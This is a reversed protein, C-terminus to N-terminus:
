DYFVEGTKIQASDPLLGSMVVPFPKVYVHLPIKMREGDRRIGLIWDEYRYAKMIEMSRKLAAEQYAQPNKM